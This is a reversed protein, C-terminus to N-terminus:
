HRELSRGPYLFLFIIIFYIFYVFNNEKWAAFVAGSQSVYFPLTDLLFVVIIEAAYKYIRWAIDQRSVARIPQCRSWVPRAFPCWWASTFTQSPKHDTTLPSTNTSGPRSLCRKEIGKFPPATSPRLSPQRRSGNNDSNNNDHHVVNIKSSTLASTITALTHFFINQRPRRFM